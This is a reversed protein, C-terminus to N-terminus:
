DVKVKIEVDVEEVFNAWGPYRARAWVGICDGPRLTELFEEGKGAGPDSESEKNKIWCVEHERERDSACVNSQIHWVISEEPYEDAPRVSLSIVPVLHYNFRELSSWTPGMGDLTM